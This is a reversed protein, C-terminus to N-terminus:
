KEQSKKNLKDFIANHEAIVEEYTKNLYPNDDERFINIVEKGQRKAYNFATKAGSQTKKKDIYGIVCDSDDVMYRNTLTIRKKFHEEEINYVTTQVDSYLEEAVSTKKELEEPTIYSREWEPIDEISKYIKKQTFIALSTTAVIIEIHTYTKRLERCISLALKDFEGHNGMLFTTYGEKIKQEVVIKLREKVKAIAYFWRHGFFCCIKKM